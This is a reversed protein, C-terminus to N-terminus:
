TARYRTAHATDSLDLELRKAMLAVTKKGAETSQQGVEDFGFERHFLLSADNRPRINVECTLIITFRQSFRELDKYLRHAIGRRRASEAVVVRDIYVFSSYRDRFWLFNPSWYDAEPTLAVLFGVPGSDHTVVHFYSAHDAFWQLTDESVSNVQPVAAENLRTLISLDTQIVSRIRM